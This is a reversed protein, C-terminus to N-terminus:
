FRGEKQPLPAHISKQTQILVRKVEKGNKDYAIKYNKCVTDGASSHKCEQKIKYTLKKESRAEYKKKHSTKDDASMTKTSTKHIQTKALDSKDSSCASVFPLLAILVLQSNIKM